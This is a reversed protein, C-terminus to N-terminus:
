EKLNNVSTGFLYSNIWRYCYLGHRVFRNKGCRRIWDNFLIFECITNIMSLMQLTKEDFIDDPQYFERRNFSATPVLYWEKVSMEERRHSVFVDNRPLSLPLSLSLRANPCDPSGDLGYHQPPNTPSVSIAYVVNYGRRCNTHKWRNLHELFFRSGRWRALLSTVVLPYFFSFFFIFFFFSSARLSLPILSPIFASDHWQKRRWVDGNESGHWWSRVKWKPWRARWFPPFTAAKGSSGEGGRKRSVFCGPFNHSKTGDAIVAHNIKWWHQGPQARTGNDYM